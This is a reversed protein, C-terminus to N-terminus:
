EYYGGTLIANGFEVGIMGNFAVSTRRWAARMSVLLWSTGKSNPYAKLRIPMYSGDQYHKFLLPFPYPFPSSFIIRRLCTAILDCRLFPSVIFKITLGQFIITSWRHSSCRVLQNLTLQEVLQALSGCFFNQVEVTSLKYITKKSLDLKKQRKKLFFNYEEFSFYLVGRMRECFFWM